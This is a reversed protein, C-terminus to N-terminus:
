EFKGDSAVVTRETIDGTYHLEEIANITRRKGVKETLTPDPSLDCKTGKYKLFNVHGGQFQYFAHLAQYSKQPISILVWSPTSPNPHLHV